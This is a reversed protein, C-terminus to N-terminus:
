QATLVEVSFVIIANPPIPGNGIPGYGLNPPIILQRRGGVRMGPIGLNWGDIVSGPGVSGLVFTFGPGGAENGDFRTGDALWGTYRVSLEQGNAVVPGGGTVVDRYYVGSPTRTSAALDVGLAPAFTTTEITPVPNNESNYESCAATVLLAAVLLRM